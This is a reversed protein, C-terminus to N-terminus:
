RVLYVPNSYAFASGDARLIEFRVYGPPGAAQAHAVGQANLAIPAARQGNSVIVLRGGPASPANVRVEVRAASAVRLTDGVAASADGARVSIDPTADRADTMVIVHGARIGALIDQQTLAPAFVRAHANDIPNPASHWDSSGVGAIRRGAMLLKDWMAIAKDAEGHRGNSIEISEIGDVVEHTWGCALCESAPHNISFMAGQKRASAVLDRIRRDGPLVRFDVWGGPPLGWVSAHGGPTTVEEGVIRLPHSQKSAELDALEKTHTTNNHDTIAVFDFGKDTFLRLLQRPSVTGDSHLTHTHLAGTFWRPGKPAPKPSLTEYDVVAIRELAGTEITLTVSVGTEGVRYLGLLAHWRGNPLPGPRYGPTASASDLVVESRAGGSYGRFARTGLDLPGPEFLGLDVVNDGNAKDYTYNVHLRTAGRPVDFPIYQYRGARQDAPTFQKTIEVRAPTQRADFTNAGALLLGVLALAPRALRTM